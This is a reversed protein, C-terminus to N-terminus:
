SGREEDFIGRGEPARKGRRERVLLFVLALVVIGLVVLSVLAPPTKGSLASAEACPKRTLMAANYYAQSLYSGEGDGASLFRVYIVRSGTDEALQRAAQGPKAEKMSLPCVIGRAEKAHLKRAVSELKAANVGSTGEDPLLIDGVVAGVNQVVYAVGPVVAVLTDGTLGAEDALARGTAHAAELEEVFRLLNSTIVESPAGREVLANAVAGAIARGNVHDLWFGHPNRALGPFDLLRAGYAEYEPWDVLPVGPLDHKLREEFSLFSTNAFVILAAGRVRQVIEASVSFSHPDSGSPMVAFPAVLDGGVARVIPVIDSLTVAVPLPTRPVDAACVGAAIVLLCALITKKM